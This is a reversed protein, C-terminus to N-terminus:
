DAGLQLEMMAIVGALEERLITAAAAADDCELIRQQDLEQIPALRSMEYLASIPEGSLDPELDGIDAGLETALALTKTLLQRCRDVTDDLEAGPEPTPLREIRALPYPDDPLWEVVRLREIGVAILMITEDELSGAAVTRVVTGIEFHQGGGAEAVGREILVIGFEGSGELLDHHLRLYRPEFLRLPIVSGPFAVLGLPFMPLTEM